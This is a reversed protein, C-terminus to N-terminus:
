AAFPIMLGRGQLKVLSAYYGDAGLLEVHTGSEAIQGDRLVLIRDARVVTALRHAIVFTTRGCLLRELAKEILAESEADLASTAEDLVVISPRKLLARAIAIRQRQGASLVAGRDGVEADYGRPLRQIFEHANAASAAEEIESLSAEPRGYAINARISENFLVPDQLVVGIHRRLSTGVVGRVDIGDIKISGQDPDYLRQLLATLSTKGGGSPGVLAVKEGVAVDFTIERLVPKDTSYGFGVNEFSVAGRVEGLERADAADAVQEKSDLISFVVDLSVSARRLTQYIGTLGQVPAFLGALYGVFALLTGVSIQGRLALYGGWGLVVIRALASLLQQLAAIAADFGVGRVVLHNAEGVHQMFRQKEASEMAFSKVTVIGSLVENFRSYIRVWRDLLKRDRDTQVPAAWAGILAPLPVFLLVVALLRWELHAMMVVSLVLFVSAPVVNFALESFAAVFGQIGRDLRAMTGGVPESKHYAISLAHLRGVVADLIAYQVRVRTRWTFWNALASLGERLLYLVLLSLLGVVLQSAARRAVVGDVLARMILPDIAGIVGVGITLVVIFGMTRRQDRAFGLARRV